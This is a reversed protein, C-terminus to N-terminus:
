EGCTRHSVVDHATAVGYITAPRTPFLRVTRLVVRMITTPDILHSQFTNFHRHVISLVTRTDRRQEPPIARTHVVPHAGDRHIRLGLIIILSQKKKGRGDSTLAVFVNM